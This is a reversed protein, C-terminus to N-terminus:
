LGLEIAKEYDQMLRDYAEEALGEFDTGAAPSLCARCYAAIAALVLRGGSMYLNPHMVVPTGRPMFDIGELDSEVLYDVILAPWNGHVAHSGLRQFIVYELRSWGIDEFMSALNPIRKAQEVENKTLGAALFHNEISVLMRKELPTANGGNNQINSRILREFELEPQLGNAILRETRNVIDKASVWILKVATEMLSRHIISATEGFEREHTLAIISLMLRSCRGILASWLHYERKSIPAFEGSNPQIFAVVTALNGVWRYWEFFIYGFDGSESCENWDKEMFVPYNPIMEEVPIGATM